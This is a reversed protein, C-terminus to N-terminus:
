FPMVHAFQNFISYLSGKIIRFSPGALPDRGMVDLRTHERGLRPLDTERLALLGQSGGRLVKGTGNLQTGRARSLVKSFAPKSIM